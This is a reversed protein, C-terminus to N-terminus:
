LLRGDDVQVPAEDRIPPQPTVIVPEPVKFPTKLFAWLGALFLGVHALSSYVVVQLAPSTLWLYALGAGAVLAIAMGAVMKLAQRHRNFWAIVRQRNRAPVLLATLYLLAVGPPLMVLMGLAHQPHSLAPRRLFFVLALSAVFLGVSTWLRRHGLRAMLRQKMQTLRAKVAALKTKAADVIPQVRDQYFKFLKAKMITFRRKPQTPDFKNFLISHRTLWVLARAKFRSLKTKFIRRQTQYFQKLNAKM